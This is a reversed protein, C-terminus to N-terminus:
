YLRAISFRTLRRKLMTSLYNVNRPAVRISRPINPKAKWRASMNRSEWEAIQCADQYGLVVCANSMAVTYYYYIKNRLKTVDTPPATGHAKTLAETLISDNSTLPYIVGFWAYAKDASKCTRAALSRQMRQLLTLDLTANQGIVFIYRDRCTRFVSKDRIFNVSRAFYKGDQGHIEIGGKIPLHIPFFLDRRTPLSRRDYVVEVKVTATETLTQGDLYRVYLAIEDARATGHIACAAILSALVCYARRRRNAACAAVPGKRNSYPMM